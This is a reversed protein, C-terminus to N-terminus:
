PHPTLGIAFIVLNLLRQLEAPDSGYVSFFHQGSTGSKCVQLNVNHGVIASKNITPLQRYPTINVLAGAAVIQQAQQTAHAQAVAQVSPSPATSPAGRNPKAAATGRSPLPKGPQNIMDAIYPM